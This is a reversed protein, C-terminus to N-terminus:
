LFTSYDSNELFILSTM